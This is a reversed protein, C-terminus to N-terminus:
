NAIGAASDQTSVVCSGARLALCRRRRFHERPCLRRDTHRGGGCSLCASLRRRAEDLGAVLDPTSRQQPQPATQTSVSRVPCLDAVAGAASAGPIETAGSPDSAFSSDEGLVTLQLGLSTGSPVLEEVVDIREVVADLEEAVRRQSPDAPRVEAGAREDDEPRMRRRTAM